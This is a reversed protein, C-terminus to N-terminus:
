LTLGSFEGYFEKRFKAACEAAKTLDHFHRQIRKGNATISVLWCNWKKSWSVNRHGSTNKVSLKIKHRSNEKKTALRLNCPRNDDAIGNSHDVTNELPDIKNVMFYVIRHVLYRKNIINTMLHGSKMKTGCVEGKKHNKWERKRILNGTEYDLEFLENILELSPMPKNM